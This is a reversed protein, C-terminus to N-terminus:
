GNNLYNLLTPLEEVPIIINQYEGFDGSDIEVYLGDECFNIQITTEVGNDHTQKFKYVLMFFIGAV